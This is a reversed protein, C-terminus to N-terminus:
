KPSEHKKGNGAALTAEALHATEGLKEAFVRSDKMMGIVEKLSRHPKGVPFAGSSRQPYLCDEMKEENDWYAM